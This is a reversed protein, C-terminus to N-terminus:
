PRSNAEAQEARAYEEMGARKVADREKEAAERRKREAVITDAAETLTDHIARDEENGFHHPNGALERLREVLREVGQEPSPLCDPCGPCPASYTAGSPGAEIIHGREAM